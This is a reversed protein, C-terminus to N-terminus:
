WRLTQESTFTRPEGSLPDIFSISRALLRLPRSFDEGKDPLVEPYWPDDKIPIGLAAMHVRLQHKRGTHPELCYHAWDGRREILDIRTESNPEGPVEHMTFFGEGEELLSRHVHPLALDERYPAIAEYVKSIQRTQFLRQYAGRSPVHHCFMVVGATERDLRHVPTLDPLNLKHRLRTLLTEKLYKGAPSISLFHPKDAVLIREDRYLVREEFPVPIEPPVDRYYWIRIGARYPSDVAFPRGEDNVLEGRALRGELIGPELHAFREALYALLSPWKGAPLWAYSPGVGERQPLPPTRPLITTVIFAPDLYDKRFRNNQRRDVM